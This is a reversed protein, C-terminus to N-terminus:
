EGFPFLNLHNPQFLKYPYIAASLPCVCSLNMNYYLKLHVNKMWIEEPKSVNRYLACYIDNEM